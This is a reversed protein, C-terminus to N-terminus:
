DQTTAEDSANYFQINNEVFNIIRKEPIMGLDRATMVNLLQLGKEFGFRRILSESYHRDM